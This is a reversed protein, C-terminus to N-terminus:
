VNFSQVFHYKVSTVNTQKNSSSLSSLTVTTSIYLYINYSKPMTFRSQSIVYM